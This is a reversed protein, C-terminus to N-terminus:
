EKLVVPAHIVDEHYTLDKCHQSCIEEEAFFYTGEIRQIGCIYYV